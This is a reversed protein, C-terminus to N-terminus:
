FWRAEGRIKNNKFCLPGLPTKIQTTQERIEKIKNSAFIVSATATGIETKMRRMTTTTKTVMAITTDITNRSIVTKGKQTSLSSFSISRRELGQNRESNRMRNRKLM